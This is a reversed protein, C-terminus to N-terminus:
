SVALVRQQANQLLVNPGLHLRAGPNDFQTVLEEIQEARMRVQLIYDQAEQARGVSQATLDPRKREGALELPELQRLHTPQELADGDLDFHRGILSEFRIQRPQGREHEVLDVIIHGKLRRM